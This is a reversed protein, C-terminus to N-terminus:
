RVMVPGGTKWSSLHRFRGGWFSDKNAPSGSKRLPKGLWRSLAHERRERGSLAPSAEDVADEVQEALTGMVRPEADVPSLMIPVDMVEEQCRKWRDSGSIVTLPELAADWDGERLKVDEFTFERLSRKHRLIFESIQSSDMVANELEMIRLRSFKLPKPGTSQGRMSPHTNSEDLPLPLGLM